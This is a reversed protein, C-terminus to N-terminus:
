GDSTFLIPPCSPHSELAAAYEPLFPETSPEAPLAWEPFMRRLDVPSCNMDRCHLNRAFELYDSALLLMPGGELAAESIFYANM